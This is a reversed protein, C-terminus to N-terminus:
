DYHIKRRLVISTMFTSAVAAAVSIITTTAWLRIGSWRETWEIAM